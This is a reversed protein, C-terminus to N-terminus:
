ELHRRMQDREAKAEGARAEFFKCRGREAKFFEVYEDREGALTEVQERLAVMKRHLRSCHSGMGELQAEAAVFGQLMIEQVSANDDAMMAKFQSQLFLRKQAERSTSQALEDQGTRLLIADVFEECKRSALEVFGSMQDFIDQKIKFTDSAILERSIAEDREETLTELQAQLFTNKSCEQELSQGLQGNESELAALRHMMEALKAVLDSYLM